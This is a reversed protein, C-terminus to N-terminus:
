EQGGAIQHGVPPEVKRAIQLQVAIEGSGGIQQQLRRFERRAEGGGPKRESFNALLEALPFSRGRREAFGFRGIGVIPM